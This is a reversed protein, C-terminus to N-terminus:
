LNAVNRYTDIWLHTAYAYSFAIRALVPRVSQTRRVEFLGHRSVLVNDEQVESKRRALEDKRSVKRADGKSVIALRSDKALPPCYADSIQAATDRDTCDHSAGAGLIITLRNLSTKAM